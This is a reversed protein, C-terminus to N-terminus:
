KIKGMVQGLKRAKELVGEAKQLLGKVESDGPSHKLYEEFIEKAKAYKKYSMLMEGYALVVSRYGEELSRHGTVLSQKETGM